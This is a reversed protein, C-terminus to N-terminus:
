PGDDEMALIAVEWIRDGLRSETQTHETSYLTGPGALGIGFRLWADLLTRIWGEPNWAITTNYRAEIRCELEVGVGNRDSLSCDVDSRSVHRYGQPPPTDPALAGCLGLLSFRLSGPHPSKPDMVKPPGDPCGYETELAAPLRAPLSTRLRDNVERLSMSVPEAFRDRLKSCVNSDHRAGAPVAYGIELCRLPVGGSPDSRASGPTSTSPIAIPYVPLLGGGSGSFTTGYVSPTVLPQHTADLIKIPGIEPAAMWACVARQLEQHEGRGTFTSASAADSCKRELLRATRSRAPPVPIEGTYLLDGVSISTTQETWGAPLESQPADQAFAAVWLLTM